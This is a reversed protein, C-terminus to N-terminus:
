EGQQNVTQYNQKKNREENIYENMLIKHTLNINIIPACLMKIIHAGGHHFFLKDLSPRIANGLSLRLEM